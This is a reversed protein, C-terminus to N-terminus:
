RLSETRTIPGLKGRQVTSGISATVHALLLGHLSAVGIKRTHQGKHDRRQNRKAVREMVKRFHRMAETRWGPRCSVTRLAPPTEVTALTVAWATSRRAFERASSRVRWLLEVIHGPRLVSGVYWPRM